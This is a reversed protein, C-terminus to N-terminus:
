EGCGGIRISIAGEIPYAIIRDDDGRNRTRAAESLAEIVEELRRSPVVLELKTKPQFDVRYEAGRYVVTRGSVGADVRVDSVVITPVELARLTEIIRDFKFPEIFAEVKMLTQRGAQEFLEPPELTLIAGMARQM